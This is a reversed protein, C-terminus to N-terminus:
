VDNNIGEKLKERLIEYFSRRNLKLLKTKYPAKEIIVEDGPQLSFGYQGDLTLMIEGQESLIVVKVINSGDIVLPRAYLTHPCVPTMIMLEMDPAVLPGGASLSYATSGTPTSVILGDAPYTEVYEDNVYAKLRILRAFAGKTIVADNLCIFKQSVEGGRRVSAQLMMREEVLYEGAVLKELAPVTDKVEVETLFGLQGLNIGFLPVGAIAISRATNLLTGDGGLVIACDISVAWDEEACALDPRGLEVACEKPLLIKKENKEFWTIIERVLSIVQNKEPNVVLGINDM